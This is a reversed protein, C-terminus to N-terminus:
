SAEMPAARRRRAALARGQLSRRSLVAAHSPISGAHLRPEARAGLLDIIRHWQPAVTAVIVGASIASSCAFLGLGIGYLINQAHM